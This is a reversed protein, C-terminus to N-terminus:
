SRVSKEIMKRSFHSQRQATVGNFLSVKLRCLACFWLGFDLCLAVARAPEHVPGDPDHGNSPTLHIHYQTPSVANILSAPCQPRYRGPGPPICGGRLQRATALAPAIKV